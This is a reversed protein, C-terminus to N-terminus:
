KKFVKFVALAERALREAVIDCGADSFHVNDWYITSNTQSFVDRMDLCNLGRRRMLEMQKRQLSRGLYIAKRLEPDVEDRLKIEEDTLPKDEDIIPQLTFLAEQGFSRLIADMAQASDSWLRAANQLFSAVDGGRPEELPARSSILEGRQAALKRVRDAARKRFARLLPTLLWRLPKPSAEVRAEARKYLWSLAKIEDSGGQTYLFSYLHTNIFGEPLRFRNNLPVMLENHGDFTIAADLRHRHEILVHLQQPQHGAGLALNLVRVRSVGPRPERGIAENLQAELRGAITAANDSAGASFAVSGGFLGIWVEGEPKNVPPEDNRFGYRDFRNVCNQPGKDGGALAPSSSVARPTYTYGHYPHVCFIGHSIDAPKARGLEQRIVRRRFEQSYGTFQPDYPPLEFYVPPKNTWLLAVWRRATRAAIEVLPKAADAGAADDMAFACADYSRLRAGARETLERAEQFQDAPYTLISVGDAPAGQASQAALATIKAGPFLERARRVMTELPEFRGDHLILVDGPAAHPASM